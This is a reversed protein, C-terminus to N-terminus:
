TKNKVCLIDDNQETKVAIRNSDDKNLDISVKVVNLANIIELCKHNLDRPWHAKHM